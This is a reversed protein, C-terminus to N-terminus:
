VEIIEITDISSFSTIDDITVKGNLLLEGLFEKHTDNDLLSRLDNLSIEKKNLLFKYKM